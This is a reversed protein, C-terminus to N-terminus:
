RINVVSKSAVAEKADAIWSEHTRPISVPNFPWYRSPCNPRGAGEDLCVSCGFKGNFQKCNAVMAKAPLDVTTALLKGKVLLKGRPTM